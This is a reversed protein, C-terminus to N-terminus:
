GWSTYTPHRGELAKSRNEFPRAHVVPFCPRMECGERASFVDLGRVHEELGNGQRFTKDGPLGDEVATEVDVAVLNEVAGGSLVLLGNKVVSVPGRQRNDLIKEKGHSRVEEGSASFGENVEGVIQEQCVGRIKQGPLPGHDFDKFIHFRRRFNVGGATTELFAPVKQGQVVKGPTLAM